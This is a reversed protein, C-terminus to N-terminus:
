IPYEIKNLKYVLTIDNLNNDFNLLIPEKEKIFLNSKKKKEFSNIVLHFARNINNANLPNILPKIKFNTINLKNKKVIAYYANYEYNSIEHIQINESSIAAIKIQCDLPHFFVFLDSKNDYNSVDFNFNYIKENSMLETQVEGTNIKKNIIESDFSSDMNNGLSILLPSNLNSCEEFIEKCNFSYILLIYLFFSRINTLFKEFKM